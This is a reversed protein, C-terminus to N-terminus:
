VQWGSRGEGFFFLRCSNTLVKLGDLHATRVGASSVLLDVRTSRWTVNVKGFPPLTVVSTVDFVV